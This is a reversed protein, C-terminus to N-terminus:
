WTKERNKRELPGLDEGKITSPLVLVARDVMGGYHYAVPNPFAVEAWLVGRLLRM